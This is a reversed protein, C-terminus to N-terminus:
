DLRTLSDTARDRADIWTCAPSGHSEERNHIQWDTLGRVRSATQEEWWKLSRM